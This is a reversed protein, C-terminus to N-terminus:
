KNCTKKNTPEVVKTSNQNATEILQTDLRKSWENYDVSLTIRHITMPSTSIYFHVFRLLIRDYKKSVTMFIDLVTM